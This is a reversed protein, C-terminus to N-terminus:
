PEDDGPLDGSLGELVVDVQDGTLNEWIGQGIIHDRYGGEFEEGWERWVVFCDANEPILEYTQAGEPHGREPDPMEADAAFLMIVKM